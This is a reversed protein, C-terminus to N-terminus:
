AEGALVFFEQSVGEAFLERGFVSMMGEIQSTQQSLADVKVEALDPPLTFDIALEAAPTRPPTGPGFVNFRNMIPVFRDAWEPTQTAHYLRAGPKAAQEFAASTWASVCKHDSHGTMGDPGFTLVSDPQADEIVGRIKATAEGPDVTDCQGDIYDLWHHERVGLVGLCRKLEAQRIRGMDAPPWRELDQSGAEGRTATVCVVRNGSLVNRAMLGGTTFTEDDPHAGVVLMTGLEMM